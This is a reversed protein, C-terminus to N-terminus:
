DSRDVRVLLPENVYRNPENIKRKDFHIGNSLEAEETLGSKEM